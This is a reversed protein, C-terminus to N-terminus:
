GGNETTMMAKLIEAAVQPVISNGLARLKQVRDPVGTELLPLTGPRVGAMGASLRADLGRLPALAVRRAKGDRGAIWGADAWFGGPRPGPDGGARRQQGGRQLGGDGPRPEDADAVARYGEDIAAPRRADERGRAACDVARHMEGRREGEADALASPPGGPQAVAPGPQQGREPAGPEGRQQRAPLGAGGPDGVPRACIWVRDRRHPADVACAPLVFARACYGAGELDALMGDLALGVVNAVNEVAVAAPRLSAVLRAMEPWLHRDDATGRQQGAVSFPQCPPSGTVIDCDDPLGALRCAYAWGGLGAFFHRQGYGALDAPQVARIDREDVDGPPLHGAAILNRLWAACYPDIESYYAPRM